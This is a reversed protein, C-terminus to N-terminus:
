QSKSVAGTKSIAIGNLACERRLGERDAPTLRTYAFGIPRADGRNCSAMGLIKIAVYYQEPSAVGEMVKNAHVVAEGWKEGLFARQATQLAASVEAETRLSKNGSTYQNSTSQGTNTPPSTSSCAGAACISLM